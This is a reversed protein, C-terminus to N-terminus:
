MKLIADIMKQREVALFDVTNIADVIGQIKEYDVNKSGSVADGSNDRIRYLGVAECGVQYVREPSQPLFPGIVAFQEARYGCNEYVTVPVALVSCHQKLEPFKKSM